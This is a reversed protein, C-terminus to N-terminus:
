VLFDLEKSVPVTPRVSGDQEAGIIQHVIQVGDMRTGAATAANPQSSRSWAFGRGRAGGGGQTHRVGDGGEPM